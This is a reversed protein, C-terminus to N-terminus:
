AARRRVIVHVQVRAPRAEPRDRAVWTLRLREGDPTVERVWQMRLGNSNQGDHM